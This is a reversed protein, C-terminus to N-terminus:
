DADAGRYDSFVSGDKLAADLAASAGPGHLKDIQENQQENHWVDRAIPTIRLALEAIIDLKSNKTYADVHDCYRDFDRVIDAITIDTAFNEWEEVQALYHALRKNVNGPTDELGSLWCEYKLAYVLLDVLTDASSDFEDGVGLRDVKRAMNALISMKEGRKKWSDGYSAHKKAHLDTTFGYFARTREHLALNHGPAVPASRSARVPEPLVSAPTRAVAVALATNQFPVLWREERMWYYAIAAAWTQFLPEEFDGLAQITAEGKRCLAEWAFWKDILGDVTELTRDLHDPMRFQTIPHSQHDHDNSQWIRNAKDWHQEYLHLSGINFTLPGVQIGLLFAVIEQLTSWEFANIGSWGWMLDNSRVTVTMHLKGLRSQFQIFDNCPVDKGAPIDRAPDYIAIVARRSLPDERLLDVVHALQDVTRAPGIQVPGDASISIGGAHVPWNRIRPGYGGRWTEGDDSYDKARPLYASLWEIDNRGSLVWMTEAIQAFVNAKRDVALIERCQPDTLVIQANLFEKVRGNRSGVEDGVDLIRSCIYPLAESATLFLYRENM